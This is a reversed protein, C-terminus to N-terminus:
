YALGLVKILQICENNKREVFVNADTLSKIFM